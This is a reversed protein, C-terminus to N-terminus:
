TGEGEVQPSPPALATRASGAEITSGKYTPLVDHFLEVDKGCRRCRWLACRQGAFDPARGVRYWLHACRPARTM